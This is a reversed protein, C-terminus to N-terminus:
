MKGLNQLVVHRLGRFFLEHSCRALWTRSHFNQMNYDAGLVTFQQTKLRLWSGGTLKLRWLVDMIYSYFLVRWQYFSGLWCDNVNKSYHTIVGILCCFSTFFKIFMNFLSIALVTSIEVIDGALFCSIQMAGKLLQDLSIQMAGKLLPDLSIQM